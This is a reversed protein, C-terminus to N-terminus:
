RIEAACGRFDGRNIKQEVVVKSLLNGLETGVARHGASSYHVSDIFLDEPPGAARLASPVDFLIAGRSSLSDLLASEELGNEPSRGERFTPSIGIIVPRGCARSAAVERRLADLNREKRQAFTQRFTEEYGSPYLPMEWASDEVTFSERFAQLWWTRILHDIAEVLAFRPKRAPPWLMGATAYTRYVDGWPFVWVVIDASDAWAAHVEAQNLLGTGNVGANMAYVERSGSRLVDAAVESYLDADDIRSGGWTVSDGLYLIRIASEMDSKPTRFGNGDITITAGNIRAVQQSPLPRLGGWAANYYIVPDGLGMWRAALELLAVSVLLVVAVYASKVLLSRRQPNM